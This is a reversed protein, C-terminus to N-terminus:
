IWFVDLNPGNPDALALGSSLTYIRVTAVNASTMSVSVAYYTAGDVQGWGARANLTHPSAYGPSGSPIADNVTTPWTITYLGTSVRAVVPAVAAGTGWNANHAVVTPTGSGAPLIRVWARIATNTMAANNAYASNAAAAARDTTPDIVPSYDNLAGGLTGLSDIDPLPM